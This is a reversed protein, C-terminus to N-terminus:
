HNNSSSNILNLSETMSVVEDNDDIEDQLPYDNLREQRNQDSTEQPGTLQSIRNLQQQLQNSTGIGLARLNLNTDRDEDENLPNTDDDDQSSASINNYDEIGDSSNNLNNQNL